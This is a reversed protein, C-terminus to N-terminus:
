RRPRLNRQEALEAVAERVRQPYDDPFEWVGSGEPRVLGRDQPEVGFYLQMLVDSSVWPNDYWYSHAFVDGRGAKNQAGTVDIFGFTTAEKLAARDEASLKTIAKGLRPSGTTFGTSLSLGIDKASSYVTFHESVDDIQDLVMMRFYDTDEDAGALIVYGIRLRERLQEPSAQLNMLRLQLLTRTLIPVGASYAILNIREADTEEALYLLLQRLNRVSLEGTTRQATYNFPYKESPWSYAIMVGDRGTFHHLEAALQIPELFATNYGPVYITVAKNRSEALRRNIEAAYRNSPERLPDDPSIIEPPVERELITTWLIGVEEVRTVRVTPRDNDLSRAAVSRFSEDSGGIRVSAEGLRLDLGRKGYRDIGDDASQKPKRDTAYLIEVETTRRDEPLWAYPDITHDEYIIPTPMLKHSCGALFTLLVLLTIRM